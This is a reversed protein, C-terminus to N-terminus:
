IIESSIFSGDISVTFLHPQCVCKGVSFPDFQTGEVDNCTCIGNELVAGIGYCMICVDNFPLFNTNCECVANGDAANDVLTAFNACQCVGNADLAAGLGACAVCSDGFLM